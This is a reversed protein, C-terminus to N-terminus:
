TELYKKILFEYKKRWSAKKPPRQKTRWLAEPGTTRNLDIGYVGRNLSVIQINKNLGVQFCASLNPSICITAIFNEAARVKLISAIIREFKDKSLSDWKSFLVYRKNEIKKLASNYLLEMTKNPTIIDDEDIKLIILNKDAIPIKFINPLIPAISSLENLFMEPNIEFDVNKNITQKQDLFEDQAYSLVNTNDINKKNIDFIYVTNPQNTLHTKKGGIVEFSLKKGYGDYGFVCSDNKAANNRNAMVCLTYCKNEIARVRQYLAWKKYDVHGGSSNIIIDANNKGYFASFLPFASDYCILHGIKLGKYNIPVYQEKYYEEFAPLEFASYRTAVNKFYNKCKDEEQEANPNRYSSYIEKHVGTESFIVPCGCQKVLADIENLIIESSDEENEFQLLSSGRMKGIAPHYVVEPFVLLDLNNNKVENLIRLFVIEANDNHLTTDQLFLGIRM